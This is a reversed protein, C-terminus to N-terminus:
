PVSRAPPGALRGGILTKCQNQWIADQVAPLFQRIARWVDDVSRALVYVGGFREIMAQYDRQARSQRGADSKVEVELRRGDPLIGTLDAQGVVGFRIVRKGRKAVGANARWLRMDSRAGFARLIENQIQKEAPSKEDHDIM